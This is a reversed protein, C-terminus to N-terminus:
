RDHFSQDLWYRVEETNFRITHDRSDDYVRWYIQGFRAAFSIRVPDRSQWIRPEDFRSTM